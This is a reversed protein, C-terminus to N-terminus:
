RGDDGEGECEADEADLGCWYCYWFGCRTCRPGDHEKGDEDHVSNALMWRAPDALRWPGPHLRDDRGDDGEWRPGGRGPIPPGAAQQELIEAATPTPPVPGV